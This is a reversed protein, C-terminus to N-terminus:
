WVCSLMLRYRRWLWWGAGIIIGVITDVVGGGAGGGGGGFFCNWYCWLMIVLETCGTISAEYVM